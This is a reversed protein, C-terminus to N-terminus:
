SLWGKREDDDGIVSFGLHTRYPDNQDSIQQDIEDFVSESLMGISEKKELMSM